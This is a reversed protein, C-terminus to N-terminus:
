ISPRSTIRLTLTSARGWNVPSPGVIRIARTANEVLKTININSQLSRVRLHLNKPVQGRGAVGGVDALHQAALNVYPKFM